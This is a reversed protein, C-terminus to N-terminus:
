IWHDLNTSLHHQYLCLYVNGNNKTLPPIPQKSYNSIDIVLMQTTLHHFTYIYNKTSAYKILKHCPVCM